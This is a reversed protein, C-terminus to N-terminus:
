TELHEHRGGPFIGELYGLTGYVNPENITCWLDCHEDLAEVVRHAFRTFLAITEPNEWGGREALWCPNTFHHLTVMPEINRARLGQLMEGYRELASDDFEGARPEIRSWEVSLRLANLGLEAARDFDAEAKEWWNCALGSDHGDKIHGEQQEWAWWDNNTNNGEVQHAATAVGWKFDAPFHFTAQPISPEERAALSDAAGPAGRAKEQDPRPFREDEQRDMWEMDMGEFPDHGLVKNSKQKRKVM